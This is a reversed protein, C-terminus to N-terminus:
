SEGAEEGQSPWVAKDSLCLVRPRHLSQVSPQHRTSYHPPYRPSPRMAALRTLAQELSNSSDPSVVVVRLYSNGESVPSALM